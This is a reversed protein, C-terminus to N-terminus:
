QASIEQEGDSLGLLVLAEGVLFLSGAILTPPERLRASSIAEGLSPCSRSPRFAAAIQLM